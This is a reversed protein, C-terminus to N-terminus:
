YYCDNVASVTAAILETQPRALESRFSPNTIDRAAPYLELARDRHRIAEDPVLTLARFVGFVGGDLSPLAAYYEAIKGEALDPDVTAVRAAHVSAGAPVERSSEGRRATPIDPPTADVGWCLTDVAVVTSVIGTIEVLMGDDIGAGGLEVHWKSSLRGPDISIRHVADVMEASLHDVAGHTEAISYPSLMAARHACLDCTRARRTEIAVAVRQTADLWTGVGGVADWSTDLADVLTVAPRLSAAALTERLTPM